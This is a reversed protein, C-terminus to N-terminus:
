MRRAAYDSAVFGREGAFLDSRLRRERLPRAAPKVISLREPERRHGRWMIPRRRVEIGAMIPVM